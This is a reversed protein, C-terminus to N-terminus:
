DDGSAPDGDHGSDGGPGEPECCSCDIHEPKESNVAHTEVGEGADFNEVIDETAMIIAVPIVSIPGEPERPVACLILHWEGTKKNKAKIVSAQMDPALLAHMTFDALERDAETLVHTM